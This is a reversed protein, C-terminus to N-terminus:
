ENEKKKMSPLQKYIGSKEVLTRFEKGTAPDLTALDPLAPLGIKERAERIRDTLTVSSGDQLISGIIPKISKGFHQPEEKALPHEEASWDDPLILNSERPNGQFTIGFFEQVEHEIFEAAPIFDVM